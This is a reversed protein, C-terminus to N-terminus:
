APRAHFGVDSGPKAAQTLVDFAYRAVSRFCLVEARDGARMWIAAPIQALRTRRVMGPSFAAPAMDAPTLKALVDRLAAGEIGLVARADSVDVALHHIGALATGIREVAPGAEARPLLLLVEDPAMWLCARDEGSARLADPFAAGTVQACAERLADGDLAGKLTVMGRPRLDRVTVLGQSTAGDLASVLDSM